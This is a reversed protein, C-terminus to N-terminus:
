AVAARAMRITRMSSARCRNRPFRPDPWAFRGRSSDSAARGAGSFVSSSSASSSASSRSSVAAGSSARTTSHRNKAPRETSSIALVSSIESRVTRRWHRAARAKRYRLRDPGSARAHSGAVRAKGLGGVDEPLEDLKRRELAPRPECREVSRIRVQGPHHALQQVRVARRPAEELLAGDLVCGTEFLEAGTRGRIRVRRAFGDTGVHQDRQEAAAAHSLDPDGLPAVALELLADGQLEQLAPDVRLADPPPEQLFTLHERPEIVGVDRAQEVAAFRVPTGVEHHLEDLAHRDRLMAPLCAGRELLPQPEHLRAALGHVRRLPAQDHVAVDLGGVHEDRRISLDLEEVEADRLHKGGVALGRLPGLDVLPNQRRVVGSGLLDQALRDRRRRVHVRQAHEEVLEQRARQRVRAVGGRRGAQGRRHLVLRDFPRAPGRRARVGARRSERLALALLQRRKELIVEVRDHQLSQPALGLAAVRAGAGEGFVQASVPVSQADLRPGVREGVADAFEHAPMPGSDRGDRQGEGGEDRAERSRCPLRPARLGVRTPGLAHLPEQDLEELRGVRVLAAALRDGRRSSSASPVRRM